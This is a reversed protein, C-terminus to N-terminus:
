QYQACTETITFLQSATYLNEDPYLVLKEHPIKLKKCTSHALKRSCTQFVSSQQHLMYFFWLWGIFIIIVSHGMTQRRHDHDIYFHMVWSTGLIGFRLSHITRWIVLSQQTLNHFKTEYLIFENKSTHKYVCAVCFYVVGCTAVFHQM